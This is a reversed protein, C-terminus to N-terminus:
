IDSNQVNIRSHLSQLSQIFNLANLMHFSHDMGMDNMIANNIKHGLIRLQNSKLHSQLKCMFM